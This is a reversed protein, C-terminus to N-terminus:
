VGDFDIESQNLLAFYTEYGQVKAGRLFELVAPDPRFHQPEIPAQGQIIIQLKMPLPSFENSSAALPVLPPLM